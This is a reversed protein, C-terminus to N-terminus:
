NNGSSLVKHSNNEKTELLCDLKNDFDFAVIWFSYIDTYKQGIRRIRDEAQMVDGPTWPRDMLIVRHSQTLTLGVSGVGFTCIFVDIGGHQFTDV